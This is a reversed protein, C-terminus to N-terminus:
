GVARRAARDPENQCASSTDRAPEKPQPMANLADFLTDLKDMLAAEGGRDPQGFYAVQRCLVALDLQAVRRQWLRWGELERRMEHNERQAEFLARRLHSLQSFISEVTQGIKSSAELGPSRKEDM